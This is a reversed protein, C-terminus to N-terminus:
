IQIKLRFYFIQFFDGKQGFLNRSIYKLIRPSEYVFLNVKWFKCTQKLEIFHKIDETKLHFYETDMVDNLKYLM